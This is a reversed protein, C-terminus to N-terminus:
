LILKLVFFVGSVVDSNEAITAFNPLNLFQPNIDAVDKVTIFAFAAASQVVEEGHLTGGGDQCFWHVSIM